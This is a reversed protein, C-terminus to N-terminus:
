VIEFEMSVQDSGFPVKGLELIKFLFVPLFPKFIPVVKTIAVKGSEFEFNL